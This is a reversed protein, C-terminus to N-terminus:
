GEKISPPSPSDFLACDVSHLERADKDWESDCAKCMWGVHVTGGGEAMRHRQVIALKRLARQLQEIENAARDCADKVMPTMATVHKVIWRLGPAASM